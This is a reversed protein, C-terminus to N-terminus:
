LSKWFSASTLESKKVLLLFKGNSRISEVAQGIRRASSPVPNAAFFSDVVDAEEITSFGRISSVIVADMLSPSAKALKTKILDLNEKFYNWAINTGEKNSAVESIPYFFDQTKLDGSKVAWDLTRLKLARSKSAGLSHMAFKREANDNTDYYTQRIQDYEASTTSSKLILKYITTKYDSPLMSPEEWHGDFRRRAEALVEADESCFEALLGIISTRLLKDVHGDTEKEDWGTKDLARKVMKQAMASFLDKAEGGIDEMMTNLGSLVGAVATWVTANDEDSFSSLYRVVAEVSGLGAKALAYADLLLAGRDVPSVAKSRIAPLLNASMAPTYAVRVMSQQGANIKVWDGPGSVPISFTQRKTTMITAADSVSDPTAFILPISWLKSAAEEPTCSGDALFWNQELEMDLSGTVANYAEAVVTLYPYGMQKTWSDMLAPLDIGSAESWANWLNDTVTNSYKHRNMYIQLGKRFHDPGLVSAAMRIVTSGKCYSIADFVQEVEEARFIPVQIPHSSRLADLRLAAGMADTTFQEWINWSPFLADVTLHEMFSAFGENLWLDNWWEMTVLNGFWQHALEHAVVIAVRQKQQSSAKKEDIMLDVERYTVLGWNEM